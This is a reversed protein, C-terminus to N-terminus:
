EIGGEWSPRVDGGFIVGTPVPDLPHTDKQWGDGRVITCQYYEQRDDEFVPENVFGRMYIRDVHGDMFSANFTWDKGHWGHVTGSIGEGIWQCDKIMPAASWAFRGNNEYFALTRHPARIESLRHLYPSNSSAEGLAGAGSIMFVNATYSTGYYDYSSLLSDRFDPHHIGTYGTDAPCQYSPLDLLTDYYAQIRDFQPGWADALKAKYLIRNLPRTAPGFGAATGYRSGLVGPFEVWGPLGVGSKGGWDYAGIYSPTNCIGEFDPGCQQYQLPHVPLAPDSPDESAYVSNAFGIRALNDLCTTEQSSVRLAGAAPILFAAAVVGFAVVGLVDVRSGGRRRRTEGGGLGNPAGRRVVHEAM